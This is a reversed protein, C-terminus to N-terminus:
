IAILLLEYDILQKKSDIEFLLVASGDKAAAEVAVNAPTADGAAVLEEVADEAATTVAEDAEYDM